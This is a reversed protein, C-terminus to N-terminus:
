ERGIGLTAQFSLRDGRCIFWGWSIPRDDFGFFVHELRFAPAGPTLQFLSAEEANLVTAQIDLRGHKLDTSGSGDFLGHLATVEMESEVTPQTPDFVLYERHYIVPLDEQSILRRIFIVRARAPIDLKRAAREDAPITLAELIQVTTREDAFIDQLQQLDFTAAGLKPPKVFTGRGQVPAVVDQEVLIKIARRSTITSVQYQSCLEAESPLRDGPRYEGNAIKRRLIHVLQYYAPEFSDRDIENQEISLTPRRQSTM